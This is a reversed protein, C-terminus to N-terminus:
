VGFRDEDRRAATSLRYTVSTLDGASVDEDSSLAQLAAGHAEVHDRGPPLEEVKFAGTADAALTRTIQQDASTIKVTAGPAPPETGRM